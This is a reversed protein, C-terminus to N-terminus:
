LSEDPDWRRGHPLLNNDPSMWNQINEPSAPTDCCPDPSSSAERSRVSTKLCGPDEPLGPFRRFRPESSGTGHPATKYQQPPQIRPWHTRWSCEAHWPGPRGRTRDPGHPSRRFQDTWGRQRPFPRNRCWHHVPVPRLLCRGQRSQDESLCSVPAKGGSRPPYPRLSAPLVAHKDYRPITNDGTRQPRFRNRVCPPRPVRWTQRPGTRSSGRCDSESWGCHCSWAPM